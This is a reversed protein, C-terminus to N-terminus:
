ADPLALVGYRVWGSLKGLWEVANDAAVDHGSEGDVMAFVVRAERRSESDHPGDLDIRHRGPASPHSAFLGRQEVEVLSINEIDPALKGVDLEHAGGVLWGDLTKGEATIHVPISGPLPAVDGWVFAVTKGLGHVRAAHALRWELVRLSTDRELAVTPTRKETAVPAPAVNPTAERNTPGKACGIVVGTALAVGSFWGLNRMTGM